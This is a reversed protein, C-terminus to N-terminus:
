LTLTGIASGALDQSGRVGACSSRLVEQTGRVPCLPVNTPSLCGLPAVGPMERFVTIPVCRLLAVGVNHSHESEPSHRLPNPTSSVRSSSGVVSRYESRSPLPARSHPSSLSPILPSLPFRPCPGTVAAAPCLNPKQVSSDGSAGQRCNGRGQLFVPQPHTPPASLHNRISVHARPCSRPNPGRLWNQTGPNNNM